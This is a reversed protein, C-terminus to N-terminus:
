GQGRAALHERHREKERQGVEESRVHKRRRAVHDEEGLVQERHHQHHLGRAERM